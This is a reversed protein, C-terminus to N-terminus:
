QATGAIDIQITNAYNFVANKLIEDAYAKAEERNKFSGITIRYIIGKQPYNYPIIFVNYGEDLLNRFAEQAAKGPRYSAVHVTYINEESPQSLDPFVIEQGVSISNIDTIEPNNKKILELIYRDARGYVGMAIKALYDGEKVAIRKAGASPETRQGSGGAETAQEQVTKEDILDSAPLLPEVSGGEDESTAEVAPKVEPVVEPEMPEEEEEEKEEKDKPLEVLREPPQISHKSFYGKDHIVEWVRLDSFYAWAGLLILVAMAAKFVRRLRSRPKDEKREKDQVPEPVTGEPKGQEFEGLHMDKYSEAVMKRSIKPKGRSYGLLLANDALINILRPIGQSHRYLGEIAGKSFVKDPEASGAVKLRSSIYSRTEELSLPQLHYRSAIRQYLAKCRSDKLKDILETQGILFINILKEEASELNSLLRIEELLDFSLTQAEDVLLVFANQQQQLGKLYEEFELLFDAKSKFHVRKKFTSSALYDIFESPSLLPNSFHICEVNTGLNNLLAQIVTTKGTGVDGTLLIFGKREVVGYTLLALAEKHGESLYLFRHSPTINFPKEKLKFFAEYM